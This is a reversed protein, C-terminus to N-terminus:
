EKTTEEVGSVAAGVSMVLAQQLCQAPVWGSAREDAGEHGASSSERPWHRRRPPEPGVVPVTVERPGEVRAEELELEMWLQVLTELTPVWKSESEM